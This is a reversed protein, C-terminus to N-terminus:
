LSNSMVQGSLLLLIPQSPFVGTMDLDPCNFTRLKRWKESEERHCDQPVLDQNWHLFFESRKLRQLSGGAESTQM